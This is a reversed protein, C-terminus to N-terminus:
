AHSEETTMALSSDDEQARGIFCRRFSKRQIAISKEWITGEGIRKKM